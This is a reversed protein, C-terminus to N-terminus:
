QILGLIWRLLKLVDTQYFRNRLEPQHGFLEEQRKAAQSMQDFESLRSYRQLQHSLSDEMQDWFNPAPLARLLERVIAKRLYPYDKTLSDLEDPTMTLISQKLLDSYFLPNVRFRPPISASRSSDQQEPTTRASDSVLGTQQAVVPAAAFLVFSALRLYNM